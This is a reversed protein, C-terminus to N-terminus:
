GKCLYWDRCGPEWGGIHNTGLLEFAWGGLERVGLTFGLLGPFGPLNPLEL